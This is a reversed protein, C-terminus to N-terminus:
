DDEAQVVAVVARLAVGLGERNIESRVVGEAVGEVPAPLVGPGPEGHAVELHLPTEGHSNPTEASVHILEDLLDPGAEAGPHARAVEFGELNKVIQLNM